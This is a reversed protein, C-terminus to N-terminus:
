FFLDFFIWNIVMAGIFHMGFMVFDREGFLIFMLTDCIIAYAVVGIIAGTLIPISLFSMVAGWMGIIGTLPITMFMSPWFEMTVLSNLFMFICGMIFGWKFGYWYGTLIAGTLAFDIGSAVNNKLGRLSAVLSIHAFLLLLIGLIGLASM